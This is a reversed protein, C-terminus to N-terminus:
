YMRLRPPLLRIEEAHLSGLLQATSASSPRHALVDQLAPAPGGAISICQQRQMKGRM